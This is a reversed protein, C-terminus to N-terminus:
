YIKKVKSAIFSSISYNEDARLSSTKDWVRFTSFKLLRLFRGLGHWQLTKFDQRNEWEYRAPTLFVNIHRTNLGTIISKAYRASLSIVLDYEDFSLNEYYFPALFNYIIKSFPLKRAIEFIALGKSDSATKMNKSVRWGASVADGIRLFPSFVDADPFVSLFANLLRDGGGPLISAETVIAVKM